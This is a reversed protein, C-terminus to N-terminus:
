TREIEGIEMLKSVRLFQFHHQLIPKLAARLNELKISTATIDIQRHESNTVSTVGEISAVDEAVAQLHREFEGEEPFFPCEPGIDSIDIPKFFLRIGM